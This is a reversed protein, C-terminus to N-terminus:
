GRARVDETGKERKRDSGVRLESMKLRKKRKGTRSLGLSPCRRGRKGKKQGLCGWVRVDETEKERKRDSSVRLESMKLRKKGKETRAL